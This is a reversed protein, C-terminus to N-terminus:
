TSSDAAFFCNALDTVVIDEAYPALREGIFDQNLCSLMFLTICAAVQDRDPTETRTNWRAIMQDLFKQDDQQHRILVEAPVKRSIALLESERGMFHILPNNLVARFMQHLLKELHTRNKEEAGLLPSRIENQADELLEFFLLEKSGYFKYFSGKAIGVSQTIQEVSTKTVGQAAFLALGKRRLQERIATEETETFARPM